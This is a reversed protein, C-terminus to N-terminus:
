HVIRGVLKHTVVVVAVQFWKQMEFVTGEVGGIGEIEQMEKLFVVFDVIRQFVCEAAVHLGAVNGDFIREGAEVVEKGLGFIKGCTCALVNSRRCALGRALAQIHKQAPHYSFVIITHVETDPVGDAGGLENAGAVDVDVADCADEAEM